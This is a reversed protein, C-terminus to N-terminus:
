GRAALWGAYWRAEDALGAARRYSDWLAGSRAPVPANLARRHAAAAAAALDAAAANAAALTEATAHM